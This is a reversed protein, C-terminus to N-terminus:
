SLNRFYEETFVPDISRYFDILVGAKRQLASGRVGDFTDAFGEDFLKEATEAFDERVNTMAYETVFASALGVDQRSWAGNRGGYHFDPPNMAKWQRENVRESYARHLVHALEHHFAGEVASHATLFITRESALGGVVRGNKHTLTGVLIVRELHQDLIWQPYRRMSTRVAAIAQDADSAGLRTGRYSTTSLLREDEPNWVVPVDNDLRFSLEPPFFMAEIAMAQFVLVFPIGAVTVAIRSILTM